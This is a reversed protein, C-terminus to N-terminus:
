EMSNISIYKPMFHGCASQRSKVEAYNGNKGKVSWCLCCGASTAKVHNYNPRYHACQRCTEETPQM